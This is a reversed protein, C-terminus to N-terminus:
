NGDLVIEHHQYLIQFNLLQVHISPNNNPRQLPHLDVSLSQKRLYQLGWKNQKKVLFVAKLDKDTQLARPLVTARLTTKCGSSKEVQTVLKSKKMENYFLTKAGRKIMEQKGKRDAQVKGRETTWKIGGCHLFRLPDHKRNFQPVPDAPYVWKVKSSVQVACLFSTM